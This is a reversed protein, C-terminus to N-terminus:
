WSKPDKFYKIKVEEKNKYWIKVEEVLKFISISGDQISVKKILESVAKDGSANGTLIQELRDTKLRVFLTALDNTFPTATKLWKNNVKQMVYAGCLTDKENLHLYFKIVAIESQQYQFQLKCKLEFYTKEKDMLTVQDFHQQDQKQRLGSNELINSDYWEQNTESLISSFLQEPYQNTVESFNSYIAKAKFAPQYVYFSSREGAANSSLIIRSGKFNSAQANAISNASIFICILLITKYMLRNTKTNRIYNM